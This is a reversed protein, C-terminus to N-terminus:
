EAHWNDFREVKKRDRQKAEYVNLKDSACMGTFSCKKEHAKKWM